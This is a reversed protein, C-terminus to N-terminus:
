QENQTFGRKTACLEEAVVKIKTGMDVSKSHWNKVFKGEPVLGTAEFLLNQEVETM